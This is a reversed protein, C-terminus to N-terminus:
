RVAIAGFVLGLARGDGPASFTHGVEVAVEIKPRGVTSAPLPYELSFAADPQTLLTRGVLEGDVSVSVPLPKERVSAAASFGELHLKQGSRVPGHLWVTARKPMWRYGGEVQHWAPGLQSAFLPNGADLRFPLEPEGWRSRATAQFMRTVNRLPGGAASYVVARNEELARVAVYPPLEYESVSDLEPHAEITKESGPTLYVDRVGAVWHAKHYISGWFDGSSVDTLLIVKGPNLERARVLGQVLHKISLSYRYNWDAVVRAMPLSTALYLAVAAAAALRFRWKGRWAVALAWAGLTALGIVPMTLYYDSIHDRLPLIPALLIVFWAVLFGGLRDGRRWQTVVLLAVAITLVITGAVPLWPAPLRFAHPLRAPGLAYGWYTWLTGIMSSTWHMAYPGTTAKPAFHWHVGTYLVAPALLWATTRWYKRAMLLVYTMAIAPYVVNIELAGFGLLYCAWQGAMLRKRGTDIYLLLFRFSALIFFACLVQNYASTWSMAVGLNGNAVWLLPALFGAMRWGTLRWAISALLALNAFQTAFVVVRFPTANLGFLGHLVMFFARESLPRITGQARPTFLLAWLGGPDHLHQNLSLWAFDDQQFWARFGPWYLALCFLSPVTWYGIRALRSM